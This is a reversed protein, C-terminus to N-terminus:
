VLRLNNTLNKGYGANSLKEKVLDEADQRPLGGVPKLYNLHVKITPLDSKWEVVIKNIERKAEEKVVKRIFPKIIKNIEKQFVDEGVINTSTRLRYDGEVISGQEINLYNKLFDKFNDFFDELDFVEDSKMIKPIDINANLELTHESPELIQYTVGDIQPLNSLFWDLQKSYKETIKEDSVLSELDIVGNLYLDKGTSFLRPTQYRLHSPELGYYKRFDNVYTRWLTSFPTGKRFQINEDQLWKRFLLYVPEVFDSEDYQNALKERNALKQRDEQLHEPGSKKTINFPQTETNVTPTDKPKPNKQHQLNIGLGKVKNPDAGLALLVPELVDFGVVDEATKFDPYSFRKPGEIRKVELGPDKKFLWYPIRFVFFGTNGIEELQQVQSKPLKSKRPYYRYVKSSDAWVSNRDEREVINLVDWFKDTEGLVYYSAIISKDEPIYESKFLYNTPTDQEMVWKVINELESETLKITRKM